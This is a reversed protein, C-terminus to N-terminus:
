YNYFEHNSSYKLYKMCLVNDVGLVNIINIIDETNNNINDPVTIYDILENDTKTKM